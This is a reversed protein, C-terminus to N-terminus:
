LLTQKLELFASLLEDSHVVYRRGQSHADVGNGVEILASILSFSLWYRILITDARAVLIVSSGLAV